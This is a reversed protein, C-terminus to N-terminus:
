IHKVFVNVAWRPSLSGTTSSQTFRLSLEQSAANGFDTLRPSGNESILVNAGKLDGHVVGSEHLYCLGEVIEISMKCRDVDRSRELYQPMDGNSEWAAIMGIQGRFMVLGLLQQVNPHQCKSWTYLERAAHKAHKQSQESSDVYLRITKIAVEIENKLKCRYIDGFGGSSIPYTSCTTLDLQDTMNACGRTSLHLVIQEPTTTSTIEDFLPSVTILSRVPSPSPQLYLAESTQDRIGLLTIDDNENGRTGTGLVNWLKITMDTSGSVLISGDPTFAVANVWETHNHLSDIQAGTAADWIRITNDSSGAAICKVDPSFTVSNVGVIHGELPEGMSSATSADWIRVTKDPSASVLRRGDASFAISRVWHTHGTHEFLMTRETANYTKMTGDLCGGAIKSGDPSVAVSYVPSGVNIPTGAPEGTRTDWLRITRDLSGSIILRGDGSFTVSRLNDTHGQLTRIAAGGAATDWLRITRDLSGSAITRGDPSYALSLVEASHGRLPGLVMEGSYLDWLQVNIDCGAGVRAGNPSVAVSYVIDGVDWTKALTVM